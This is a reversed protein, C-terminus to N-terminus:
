PTAGAMRWGGPADHPWEVRVCSGPALAGMVAEGAHAIVLHANALM